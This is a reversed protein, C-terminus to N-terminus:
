HDGSGGGENDPPCPSVAMGAEELIDPVVRFRGREGELAFSGDKAVDAGAKRILKVAREISRPKERALLDVVERPTM